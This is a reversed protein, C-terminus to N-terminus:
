FLSKLEEFNSVYQFGTRARTAGDPEAGPPLMSKCGELRGLFLVLCIDDVEIHDQPAETM